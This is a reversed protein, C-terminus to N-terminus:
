RGASAYLPAIKGNQSLFPIFLYSKILSSADFPKSEAYVGIATAVWYLPVIRALRRGLFIASATARGFLDESSHVIVFGSIIFFLDVGAALPHLVRDDDARGDIMLSLVNFHSACVSLAAIARLFQISLLRDRELAGKRV